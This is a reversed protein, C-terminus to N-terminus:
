PNFSDSTKNPAHVATDLLGALINLVSSRGHHAAYVLATNDPYARLLGGSEVARTALVPKRDVRLFDQGALAYDGAFVLQYWLRTILTRLRVDYQVTQCFMSTAWRDLAERESPPVCLILLVDRTLFWDWM